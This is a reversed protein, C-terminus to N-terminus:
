EDATLGRIVVDLARERAFAKEEDSLHRELPGGVLLVAFGHVASWAAIEAGARREAPMRGAEVVQDLLVGLARFSDTDTFPEGELPMEGPTNTRCFATMFLGPESIAFDIYANAAARLRAV